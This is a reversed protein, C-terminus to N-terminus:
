IITRAKRGFMDKEAVVKGGVRKIYKQANGLRRGYAGYNVGTQGNYYPVNPNTKGRMARTKFDLQRVVMGTRTKSNRLGQMHQGIVERTLKNHEYKVTRNTGLPGSRRTTYGISRSVVKRDKGRGTTTKGLVVHGKRVGSNMNGTMPAVVPHNIKRIGSGTFKHRAVAAGTLGVAVGGVVAARKIKKNRSRKRASALQAKKLAARRRATMRYRKAM